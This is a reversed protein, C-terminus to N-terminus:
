AGAKEAQQWALGALSELHSVLKEARDSSANGRLIRGKIGHIIAALRFM